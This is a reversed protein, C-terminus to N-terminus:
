DYPMRLPITLPPSQLEAYHEPFNDANLTIAYGEVRITVPKKEVLHSLLFKQHADSLLLRQGGERRVAVGNLSGDEAELVVLAEKPNDQYPPVMHSHVHLYTRFSNQMNLIEVDIGNVPDPAAYSLKSSNYDKDGTRIHSVSWNDSRSCGFLLIAFLLNKSVKKIALDKM